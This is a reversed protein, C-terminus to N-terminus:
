KRGLHKLVINKITEPADEDGTVVRFPLDYKGLLGVIEAHKEKAEEENQERGKPNYPKGARELILINLNDFRFFAEMVLHSLYHLKHRDYIISLPLPSDSIAVEVQGKLEFQRRHMEGFVHIQDSLSKTDGRWVLEKAYERVMECNVGAMKLKSFVAGQTTSKGANPGGFLNVVTLKEM